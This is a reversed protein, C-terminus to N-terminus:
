ARPVAVSPKAKLRTARRAFRKDDFTLFKECGTSSALHLADAFDIGQRHWALADTVREWHEVRVNPLGSLHEVLPAFQDPTLEYFARAVWEFEIVVTLPVFLAPSESFIRRALTRQRASQTDDPDDIYYRALINTDIGIM